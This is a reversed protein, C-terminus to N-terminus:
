TPIVCTHPAHVTVPAYVDPDSPLVRPRSRGRESQWAVGRTSDPWIEELYTKM